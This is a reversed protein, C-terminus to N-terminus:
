TSTIKKIQETLEPVIELADGVIGFDAVDFIPADPDKNIAVICQSSSMGALHQVAGSIGCAIYLNPSVTRGTQGVQNSYPRWGEDVVPRSAGVAGDLADALAELMPFNEPGQMGMGGSVVVRAETIDRKGEERKEEVLKFRDAAGGPEVAKEEVVLSVSDEPKGRFVNPRITLFCPGSGSFKLTSLAKGSYAPRKLVLASDIYDILICDTICAGGAAAALAPMLEKGHNTAGMIVCFPPSEAFEGGLIQRYVLPNYGELSTHTLVRLCDAGSNELQEQFNGADRALVVAIVRGGTQRALARAANLAELSVAKVTPGSREIVVCIDVAESM